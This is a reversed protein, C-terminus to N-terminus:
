AFTSSAAKLATLTPLNLNAEGVQVSHTQPVM